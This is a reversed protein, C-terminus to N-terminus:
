DGPSPVIVNMWPKADASSTPKASTAHLVLELSLLPPVPPLPALQEVGEAQPVHACFLQALWHASKPAHMVAHAHPSEAHPLAHAGFAVEAHVLQRAVVQPGAHM